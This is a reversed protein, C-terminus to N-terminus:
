LVSSALDYEGASAPTPAFIIENTSDQLRPSVLSVKQSQTWSYNLLFVQIFRDSDRLFCRITSRVQFDM